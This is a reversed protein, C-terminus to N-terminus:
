RLRALSISDRLAEQFILPQHCSMSLLPDLVSKGRFGCTTVQIREPRRESSAMTTESLPVIVVHAARYMFILFSWINESDPVSAEIALPIDYAIPAWIAYALLCTTAMTPSPPNVISMPSNEVATLYLKGIFTITTFFPASPMIRQSCIPKRPWGSYPTLNWSM